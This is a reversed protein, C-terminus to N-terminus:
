KKFSSKCNKAPINTLAGYERMVVATDASNPVLTGDFDANAVTEPMISAVPETPDAIPGDSAPNTESFLQFYTNITTIADSAHASNAIRLIPILSQM